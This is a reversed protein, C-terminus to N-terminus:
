EVAATPLLVEVDIDYKVCEAYRTPDVKSAVHLAPANAATVLQTTTATRRCDRMTLVAKVMERSPDSGQIKLCEGYAHPNTGM